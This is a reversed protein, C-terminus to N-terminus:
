VLIGRVALTLSTRSGASGGMAYAPAAGLQELLAAMEEAWIHQESLDGGILVDSRGCNRRDHLIM